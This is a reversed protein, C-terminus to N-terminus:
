TLRKFVTHFLYLGKLLDDAVFIDKIIKRLGSKTSIRGFANQVFMDNNNNHTHGFEFLEDGREGIIKFM